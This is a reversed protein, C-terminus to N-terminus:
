LIKINGILFKKLTPLEDFYNIIEIKEDDNKFNRISNIIQNIYKKRYECLKNENLNLIEITKIAKEYKLGIEEKPIIKGTRISYSFYEEPNEEVPNIFLKNDWDSQKWHGCTNEDSCSTLFIETIM